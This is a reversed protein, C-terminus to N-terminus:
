REKEFEVLRLGDPLQRRRRLHYGHREYLKVAPLNREATSVVLLRCDGESAEVAMLLRSGVGRRAAEPTVVLRCIDVVDAQREFSLVGLLQDNCWCGLFREDSTQIDEISELLPPLDPYDILASEVQYGAMQVTHIQRAIALDHHNLETVTYASPDDM